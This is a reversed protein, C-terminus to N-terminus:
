EEEDREWRCLWVYVDRGTSVAHRALHAIEILLRCMDGRRMDVKKWDQEFWWKRAYDALQWLNAEALAEVMSECLSLVLEDEVGTLISVAREDVVVKGPLTELCGDYLFSTQPTWVGLVIDHLEMLKDAHVLRGWVMPMSLSPQKGPEFTCLEDLTAAFFDSLLRM